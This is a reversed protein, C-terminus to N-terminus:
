SAQLRWFKPQRIAIPDRLLQNPDILTDIPGDDRAIADLVERRKLQRHPYEHGCTGLCYACADLPRTSSLYTQLRESLRPDDDIVVGDDANNFSVGRLRLRESMFPAPSCKYFRGECVTYCRWKQAILCRDFIQQVLAPDEIRNNVLTQKFRDIERSDLTIDHEECRRRVDDMDIQSAVKPYRSLWLTDILTWLEAPVQQLLLGNTVLTISTAIGSHRAFRLLAVVEPHLLPEGGIIRFEEAQLVGALREVDREFQAVDALKSPLLPSAHDCHECSLNCHQAVPYEVSRVAFREPFRDPFREAM